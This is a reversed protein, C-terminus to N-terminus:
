QLTRVAFAAIRVAFVMALALSGFKMISMIMFHHDPRMMPDSRELLTGSLAALLQGALNELL